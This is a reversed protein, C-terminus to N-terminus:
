IKVRMVERVKCVMPFGVPKKWTRDLKWTRHHQDRLCWQSGTTSQLTKETASLTDGNM